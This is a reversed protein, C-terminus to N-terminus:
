EENDEAITMVHLEDADVKLAVDRSPIQLQVIARDHFISVHVGSSVKAFDVGDIVVTKKRRTYTIEVRKKM